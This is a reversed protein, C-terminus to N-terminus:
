AAPPMLLVYRAVDVYRIIRYGHGRLTELARGFDQCPSFEVGVPSSTQDDMHNVELGLQDLHRQIRDLNTM